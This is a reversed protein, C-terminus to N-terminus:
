RDMARWPRGLEEWQVSEFGEHEFVTVRGSEQSLTLTAIVDHHTSIDLASMHRAGMWPEYADGSPGEVSRFRVLQRNVVGDVSLVVAGDCTYAVEAAADAFEDPDRLPDRGESEPWRNDGMPDAYSEVSPGVVLALYMGPARGTPDDSRDYGLAIDELHYRLTDILQQVREHERYRVTLDAQPSM